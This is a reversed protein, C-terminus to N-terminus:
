ETLARLEAELGELWVDFAGESDVVIEFTGNTRKRVGGPHRKPLPIAVRERHIGLRDTTALIAEVEGPTVATGAM